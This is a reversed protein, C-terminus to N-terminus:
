ANDEEKQSYSGEWEELLEGIRDVERVVYRHAPFDGVTHIKGDAREFNTSAAGLLKVMRALEAHCNQIRVLAILAKDDIM